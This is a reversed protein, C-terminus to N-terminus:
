SGANLTNKGTVHLLAFRVAPFTSQHTESQRVRGAAPRRTM